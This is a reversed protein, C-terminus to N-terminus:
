VIVLAPFVNVCANVISVGPQDTVKCSAKTLLLLADDAKVRVLPVNSAFPYLKEKVPAIERNEDSPVFAFVIATPLPDQVIAPLEVGHFM